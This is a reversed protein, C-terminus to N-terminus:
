LRCCLFFSHFVFPLQWSRPLAVLRLRCVLLMHLNSQNPCFLCDLVVFFSQLFYPLCAFVCVFMFFLGALLNICLCNQVVWNSVHLVIWFHFLGCFQMVLKVLLYLTFFLRLFVLPFAFTRPFCQRISHIAFDICCVRLYVDASKSLGYWVQGGIGVLSTFSGLFKKLYFFVWNQNTPNKLHFILPSISQTSPVEKQILFGCNM